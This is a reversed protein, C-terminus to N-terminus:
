DASRRRGARAEAGDEAALLARQDARRDAAARAREVLHLVLLFTAALRSSGSGSRSYFAPICKRRRAERDTIRAAANPCAAGVSCNRPGAEFCAAMVEPEVGAVAAGPSFTVSNTSM